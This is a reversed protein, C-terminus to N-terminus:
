FFRYSSFLHLLSVAFSSIILIVAIGIHLGAAQHGKGALFKAFGNEIKGLIALALVTWSFSGVIVAVIALIVAINPLWILLRVIGPNPMQGSQSMEVIGALVERREEPTFGRGTEQKKFYELLDMARTIRQVEPPPPSDTVGFYVAGAIENPPIKGSKASMVWLQVIKVSREDM